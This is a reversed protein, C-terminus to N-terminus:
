KKATFIIKKIGAYVDWKSMYKLQIPLYLVSLAIVM